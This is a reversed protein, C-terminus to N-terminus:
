LTLNLSTTFVKRENLIIATSTNIMGVYDELGLSIFYSPKVEYIVQTIEPLGVRVNLSRLRDGFGKPPFYSTIIAKSKGLTTHLQILRAINQYTEIGGIGGLSVNGLDVFTGDLLIGLSRSLKSIYIDDFKSTVLYVPEKFAKILEPLPIKPGSLLLTLDYNTDDETLKMLDKRSKVRRGLVVRVLM